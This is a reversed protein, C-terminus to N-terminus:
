NFFQIIICLLDMDELYNYFLRIVVSKIFEKKM